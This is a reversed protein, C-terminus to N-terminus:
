VISLAQMSRDNRCFNSNILPSEITYGGLRGAVKGFLINKQIPPKKTITDARILLIGSM